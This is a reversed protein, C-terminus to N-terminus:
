EGRAGAEGQRSYELLPRGAGPGGLLCQGPGQEAMQDPSRQPQGPDGEGEERVSELGQGQSM